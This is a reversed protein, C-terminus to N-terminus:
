ASAEVATAEAASRSCVTPRIRLMQRASGSVLSRGLWPAGVNKTRPLRAKTMTTVFWWPSPRKASQHAAGAPRWRESTSASGSRKKTGGYVDAV